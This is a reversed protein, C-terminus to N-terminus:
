RKPMDAAREALGRAVFPDERVITEIEERSRGTALM